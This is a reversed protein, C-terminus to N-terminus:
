QPLRDPDIPALSSAVASEPRKQRLPPDDHLLRIAPTELDDFQGSRTAWAFALVAGACLVLTIPLILFIISV